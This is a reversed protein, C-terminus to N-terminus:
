AADPRAMWRVIWAAPFFWSGGAVAFFLILAWPPTTEGMWSMYIATALACWLVISVLILVTGILKRTNQTM